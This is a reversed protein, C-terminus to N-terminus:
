QAANNEINCTLILKNWKLTPLYNMVITDLTAWPSILGNQALCHHHIYVCSSFSPSNHLHNDIIFFYLSVCVCVCVGYYRFLVM